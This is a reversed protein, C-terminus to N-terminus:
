GFPLLMRAQALGFRPVSIVHGWASGCYQTAKVCINALFQTFLRTALDSMLMEIHFALTVTPLKVLYTDDEGPTLNLSQM